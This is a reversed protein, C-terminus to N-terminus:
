EQAHATVIPLATVTLILALLVRAVADVVKTMKTKM